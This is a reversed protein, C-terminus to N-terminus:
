RAHPCESSQLPLPLSPRVHAFAWSLGSRSSHVPQTYWLFGSLSLERAWGCMPGQGLIWGGREGSHCKGSIVSVDHTVFDCLGLWIFRCNPKLSGYIWNNVYFRNPSETRCDHSHTVLSFLWFLAILVLCIDDWM